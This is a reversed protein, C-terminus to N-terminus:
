EEKICRIVGGEDGKRNTTVTTNWQMVYIFFGGYNTSPSGTRTLLLTQEQQDYFFGGSWDRAGTGKASFGTSNTGMNFPANWSPLWWNGEAAPYRLSHGGELSQIFAKLDTFDATTPAYYGVPCANKGGNVTTDVVGYNYIAGYGHNALSDNDYWCYADFPVSPTWSTWEVDSEVKPIPTGDNYHTTILNEKLWIKGDVVVETYLNGDYDKIYNADSIGPVILWNSDSLHLTDGYISASITQIENLTDADLDLDVYAKNVADMENVPTPLNEIPNNDMNLTSTAIHNGLNDAGVESWSTANDYYWFSNSVTDYIMQGEEPFVIFLHEGKPIVIGDPMVKVDQGNIM